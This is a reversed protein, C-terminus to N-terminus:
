ELNAAVVVSMTALKLLVAANEVALERSVEM